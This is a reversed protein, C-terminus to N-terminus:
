CNSTCYCLETLLVCGFESIFKARPYSLADLGNAGYNYFHVDGAYVHLLGDCEVTSAGCTHETGCHWSNLFTQVTGDGLEQYAALYPATHEGFRPDNTALDGEGADHVEHLSALVSTVKRTRAAVM